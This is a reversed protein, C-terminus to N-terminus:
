RWPNTGSYIRVGRAPQAFVLPTHFRRQPFRFLLFIHYENSLTILTYPEADDAPVWAALERGQGAPLGSYGPTAGPGLLLLVIIDTGWARLQVLPPSLLINTLQLGASDEPNPGSEFLPQYGSWWDATVVGLQVVLSFALIALYLVRLWRQKTADWLPAVALMILPIAPVLFRPGWSQGGYWSSYSSYAVVTSALPLSIALTVARHRRWMFVLGPVTLIVAPMYFILGKGPSLLQGYIRQLGTGLSWQSLADLDWASGYRWTFIAQFLL